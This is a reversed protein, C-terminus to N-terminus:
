KHQGNKRFIYLPHIWFRKLIKLNTPQFFFSLNYKRHFISFVDTQRLNLITMCYVHLKLENVNNLGMLIKSKGYLIWLLVENLTVDRFILRVILNFIILVVTQEVISEIFVVANNSWKRLMWRKYLHRGSIQAAVIIIKNSLAM